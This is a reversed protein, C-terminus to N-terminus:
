QNQELLTLAQQLTEVSADHKGAKHLAEGELRLTQIQERVAPDSPPAAAMAADIENMLTPCQNALAPVTLAGTLLVAAIMTKLM